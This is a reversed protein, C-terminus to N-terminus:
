RTFNRGYERLVRQLAGGSKLAREVDRSDLAHVTINPAFVPAPASDADNGLRGDAMGRLLNAYKAPLVMEEAHLQTMPNVGRPIDYGGAASRIKGAMAVVGAFVAAAAAPAIFPGVVPISALAAYAGAMATWANIMVTKIGEWVAIGIRALAGMWTTATRATEGAAVAGTKAGEKATEAVVEAKMFGLRIALRKAGAAAELALWKVQAAMWEAIPEIVLHKIMIQGISAWVNTLADRLSLTGALIAQLGNAFMGQTSSEVAQMQRLGEERQQSEIQLVAQGHRERLQAIRDLMQQYQVPDDRLLSARQEFAQLEIQFEREKLERLAALEQARSIEGLQRAGALRQRELDLLGQEHERARDLAMQDLQMQQQARERAAQSMAALAQKYEQSQEGYRERLRAAIEGEAQIREVSGQRHVEARAKMDALESGFAEKRLDREVTYFKKEVGLREAASIDRRALIAQWYDREAQKSFQEFSGQLLKQREYADRTADLDREWQPLRTKEKADHEKEAKGTSRTGGSNSGSIDPLAPAQIPKYADQWVQAINGAAAKADRWATGMIQRAQEFNGAVVAAGAAALAGLMQGLGKLIHWVTMAAAGVTSLATAFVQAMQPGEKAMWAGLRVLIPLLANGLQLSLSKGVLTVENMQLRYQRAQAVGEPGIALGLEQARQRATEMAAANLKLTKEYSKFEEGFLKAGEVNRDTGERFGLLKGNVDAMVDLTSRFHGNQDRTAVGLAKLKDEDGALAESIKGAADEFDDMGIGLQNLAVNLESADKVNIGLMRSLREAEESWDVTASVVEKFAAGGALVAAVAIIRQQLGQYHTSVSSLSKGMRESMDQTTNAAQNSMRRISEVVDSAMQAARLEAQSMGADFPATDATLTFDSPSAM